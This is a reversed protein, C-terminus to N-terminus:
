YTVSALRRAEPGAEFFPIHKFRFLRAFLKGPFTDTDHSYINVADIYAQRSKALDSEIDVLAKMATQFNESLRVQPYQEAVALLKTLSDTGHSMPFPLPLAGALASPISPLLPVPPAPPLQAEVSPGSGLQVRRDGVQAFVASEHRSYAVIARELSLTLDNRRQLQSDVKAHTALGDWYAAMLKNYYYVCYLGLGAVLMGGVFSWAVLPRSLAFHRARQWLSPQDEPWPRIRRARRPSQLIEAMVPRRSESRLEPGYVASIIQSLRSM